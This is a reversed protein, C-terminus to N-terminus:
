CLGEAIIWDSTLNIHNLDKWLYLFVLVVTLHISLFLRADCHQLKNKKEFFFEDYHERIYEPKKDLYQM